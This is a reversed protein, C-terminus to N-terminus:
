LFNRGFVTMWKEHSYKTEFIRQAQQQILRQNKINNHVAAPGATHHQLCLYVKLGWHESLKRGSTGPIAHHEQLDTRTDYDGNLRMCLYCTKDQKNHMISKAM